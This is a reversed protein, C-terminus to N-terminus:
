RVTSDWDAMSSCGFSAVGWHEGQMVCTNNSLEDNLGHDGGDDDADRYQAQEAFCEPYINPQADPMVVVNGLFRNRHGKYNKMGAYVLFNGEDVYYSAGDDHCLAFTGGTEGAGGSARQVIFNARIPTPAPTVGPRPADAGMTTLFPTRDWSNFAGHDNTERVFSFILNNEVVNGGCHGDNFNIAARPGQHATHRTLAAHM